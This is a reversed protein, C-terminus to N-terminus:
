PRKGGSDDPQTPTPAMRRKASFLAHKEWEPDM